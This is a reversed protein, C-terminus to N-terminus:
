PPLRLVSSSSLGHFPCAIAKPLSLIPNRSDELTKQLKLLQTLFRMRRSLEVPHLLNKVRWQKGMILKM